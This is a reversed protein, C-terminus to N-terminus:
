LDDNTQAAVRERMSMLQRRPSRLPTREQSVATVAYRHPRIWETNFPLCPAGRKSRPRWSDRLFAQPLHPRQLVKADVNSVKQDVDGGGVVGSGVLALGTLGTCRPRPFNQLRGPGLWSEM